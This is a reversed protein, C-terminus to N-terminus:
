FFYVLLLLAVSTLMLGCVTMVRNDLGDEYEQQVATEALTQETTSTLPTAVHVQEVMAPLTFGLEDVCLRRDFKVGYLYSNKEKGNLLKAREELNRVISAEIVTEEMDPLILKLMIRKSQVEQNCRMMCGITSVDVTWVRIAPGVPELGEEPLQYAFGTTRFDVREEQRQCSANAGSECSEMEQIQALQPHIDFELDALNM